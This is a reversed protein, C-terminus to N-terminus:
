GGRYLALERGVPQFGLPYYLGALGPDEFRLLVQLGEALAAATAARTVAAAAGLRRRDPRTAVGGVEIWGGFRMTWRAAAVLQGDLEAVWCRERGLRGEWAQATEERMWSVEFYIRHVAEADAASAARTSLAPAPALLLSPAVSLQRPYCKFGQLWSLDVQGDLVRVKTIEAEREKLLGQVATRESAQPVLVGLLGRHVLAVALAGGPGPVWWLLEDPPVGAAAQQELYSGLHLGAWGQARLFHHVRELESVDGVRRFRPCTAAATGM